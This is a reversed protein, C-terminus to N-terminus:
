RELICRKGAEECALGGRGVWDDLTVGLGSCAGITIVVMGSVLVICLSRVAGEKKEQCAATDLLSDKSM